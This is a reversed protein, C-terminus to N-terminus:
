GRIRERSDRSDRELSERSNRMPCESSRVCSGSRNRFFGPDCQCKPQGCAKNCTPNRNSCTPECQTSCTRWSENRPCRPQPPPPMRLCLPQPPPCPPRLCQTTVM